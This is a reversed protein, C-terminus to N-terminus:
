CPQWDLIEAFDQVLLDPEHRELAARSHAGYTVAIRSMGLQAAMAMDFSTDGIMVADQVPMCCERLLEELMLPHPKSLTEDACRSAAFFEKLGSHGFARELGKRSKGTAVALTHGERRLTELTQEVGPFFPCPWNDAAVFCDSYSQQLVKRQRSPKDPFLHELAEPLGLGIIHRVDDAAPVDFGCHEAARQMCHVIKAPSDVLTGDWDFIYLTM